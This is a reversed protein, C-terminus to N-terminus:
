DENWRWTDFGPTVWRGFVCIMLDKPYAHKHGVFKLRPSIPLVLAIRHVYSEFWNTGVAAQVLLTIVGPMAPAQEACKRAFPPVNGHPPNLFWHGPRVTAMAEKWDFTLADEALPSGPGLWAPAVRNAETAALDLDIPGFRKALAALFNEPTRVDQESRHRNLGAGTKM